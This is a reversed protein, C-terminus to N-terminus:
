VTYYKTKLTIKKKMKTDLDQRSMVWKEEVDVVVGIMDEQININESLNGENKLYGHESLYAIVISRIIKVIM